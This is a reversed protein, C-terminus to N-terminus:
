TRRARLMPPCRFNNQLFAMSGKSDPNVTEVRRRSAKLTCPTGDGRAEQERLIALGLRFGAAFHANGPDFGM